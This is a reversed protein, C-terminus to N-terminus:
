KEWEHALLTLLVHTSALYKVKEIKSAIKTFEIIPISVKQEVTFITLLNFYHQEVELM